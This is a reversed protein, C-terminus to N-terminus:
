SGSIVAKHKNLRVPHIRVPEAGDVFLPGFVDTPTDRSAILSKPTITRQRPPDDPHRAPRRRYARRGYGPNVMTWALGIAQQCGNMKYPTSRAIVAAAAAARM